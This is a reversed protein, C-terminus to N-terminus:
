LSPTRGGDVPLNIGTIYSAAPSALFAIAEAMEQPEGIRGMPVSKKWNEEIQDLTTQSSKASSDMLSTLRDTLIYGPLVNNVTIGFPALEGALTKSWSAMAGRVTNSVGLNPLPNKVSTSIVNLIRGYRSQKMSPLLTQVLLHAAHLHSKFPAEFEEISAAHLPGGKPGGSNNILIQISEKQLSPLLKKLSETEGLDVTFYKHGSGSLENMLTKLKEETRALAIVKAGREAFLLATAKGIGGSAGCVLATKGELSWSNM